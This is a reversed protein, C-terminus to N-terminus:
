SDGMEKQLLRVLAERQAATLEDLLNDVTGAAPVAVERVDSVDLEAALGVVLGWSGDDPAMQLAASEVPAREDGPVQPTPRLLVILAIAGVTAALAGTPSWWRSWWRPAAPLSEAATAQRVRESFHDWFLPSPAPPEVRSADAVVSRLDALEAQCADCGALHDRAAPDLDIAGDLADVFQEPRLHDTM